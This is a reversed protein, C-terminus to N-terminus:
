PAALATTQRASPSRCISAEDYPWELPAASAVETPMGWLTPLTNAALARVVDWAEALKSRPQYVLINQMMGADEHGVIHCHYVFKGLMVPDRFPIRVQSEPLFEGNFWAVRENARTHM